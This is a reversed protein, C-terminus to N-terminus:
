ASSALGGGGALPWTSREARTPALPQPAGSPAAAPAAASAAAPAAAPAAAATPPSADRGGGCGTEGVAQPPLPPPPPPPRPFGARGDCAAHPTRPWGVGESSKVASALAGPTPAPLLPSPTSGPRSSPAPTSAPRRRRAAQRRGGSVPHQRAAVVVHAAAAPSAVAIGVAAVAAMGVAAAVAAAVAAIAASVTALMSWLGPAVHRLHSDKGNITVHSDKGDIALHSDKGDTTLHSDKGDITARPRKLAYRTGEYKLTNDLVFLGHALMHAAPLSASSKLRGRKSCVECKVDRTAKSTLVAARCSSGFGHNSAYLLSKVTTRFMRGGRRGKQVCTVTAAAVAKDADVCICVHTCQRNSAASGLWRPSLGAGAEGRWGWELGVGAKSWSRALSAALWISLCALCMGLCRWRWVWWGNCPDAASRKWPAAGWRNCPGAAWTKSGKFFRMKLRMPAISTESDMRWMKHAARTKGM